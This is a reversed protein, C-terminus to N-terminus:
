FSREREMRRLCEIMSEGSRLDYGCGICGGKWSGSREGVEDDFEIDISEKTWRPWGLAKFAFRCLVHRRKSITASRGQVDGSRLMYTYPYSQEYPEAERNFVDVWSGDPMQKQYHLTHLNWPWDLFKSRQGRKIWISESDARIGWEPADRDWEDVVDISWLPIFVQVFGLGFWLQRRFSDGDNNSEAIKIGIPERGWHAEIAHGNTLWCRWM